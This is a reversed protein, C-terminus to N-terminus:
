RARSEPASRSQYTRERPRRHEWRTRSWAGRGRSTELCQDFSRTISALRVPGGVRSRRADIQSSCSLMRHSTSLARKSARSPRAVYSRTSATRHNKPAAISTAHVREHSPSLSPSPSPPEDEPPSDVDPPPEFPPLLPFGVPPLSVPPVDAPPLEFPPLPPFGVPPLSVPPVDPPPLEFPPLPPFGVPPLSV